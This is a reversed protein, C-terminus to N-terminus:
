VATLQSFSGLKGQCGPWAGKSDHVDGLLLVAIAPTHFRSQSSDGTSRPSFAVLLTKAENVCIHTLGIEASRLNQILRDLTTDLPGNFIIFSKTPIEPLALLDM